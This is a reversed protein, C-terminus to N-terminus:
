ADAPELANRDVDGHGPEARAVVAAYVAVAGAKCLVHRCAALTAGTTCVDDVLLLRRGDVRRKAAFADRVNARREAVPLENQMRTPEHRCLARVCRVRLGAAIAQAVEEAASTGRRARRSWHMPVPVVEDIKWSAFTAGHIAVLLEGLGHALLEGSPRKCRLVAERLPDAYGGLVALGDWDTLHQVGRCARGHGHHGGCRLCRDGDATFDRCCAGCISTLRPRGVGVPRDAM